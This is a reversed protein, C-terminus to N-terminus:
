APVVEVTPIIAAGAAVLTAAVSCYKELSLHVAKTAKDPDINGKLQFAIQINEWMSLDGKAGREGSVEVHLGKVEQKQKSLISIVDVSSCGALADLLLQMPRTGFNEGGMEPKSDMRVVHGETDKAEFGYKGNVLDLEIKAM